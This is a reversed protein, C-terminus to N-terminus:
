PCNSQTHRKEFRERNARAIEAAAKDCACLQRKLHGMRAAEARDEPLYNYRKRRRTEKLQLNVRIKRHQRPLTNRCIRGLTRYYPHRVVMCLDEPGPNHARKHKFQPWLKNAWRRMTTIPIRRAFDVAEGERAFEKLPASERGYFTRLRLHVTYPVPNDLRKYRHRRAYQEPSEM